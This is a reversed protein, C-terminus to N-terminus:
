TRTKTVTSNATNDQNFHTGQPPKLPHLSPHSTNKPHLRERRNPKAHQEVGSRQQLPPMEQLPFDKPHIQKSMTRSASSTSFFSWDSLLCPVQLIGSAAPSHLHQECSLQVLSKPQHRTSSATGPQLTGLWPGSKIHSLLGGQQTGRLCGFVHLVTFAEM